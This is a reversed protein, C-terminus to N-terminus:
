IYFRIMDVVHGLVGESERCRALIAWGDYSKCMYVELQDHLLRIIAFFLLRLM